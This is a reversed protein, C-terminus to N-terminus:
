SHVRDANNQRQQCPPHRAKSAETEPIRSYPFSLNWFDVLYSCISLYCRAAEPVRSYPFPLNWSDVSHSCTPLLLSFVVTGFSTTGCFGTRGCFFEVLSHPRFSTEWATRDRSGVGYLDTDLRACALCLCGGSVAGYCPLVLGLLYIDASVQVMVLCCWGSCSSIPFM